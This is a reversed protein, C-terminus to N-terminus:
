HRGRVRARLGDSRRCHCHRSLRLARRLAGIFELHCKSIRGTAEYNATNEYGQACVPKTKQASGRARAAGRGHGHQGGRQGLATRRHDCARHLGGGRSGGARRSRAAWRTCAQACWGGCAPARGARLAAGHHGRVAARRTDRQPHAHRCSRVCTRACARVQSSRMLVVDGHRPKWCVVPIRAKSRFQAVASLRRRLASRM